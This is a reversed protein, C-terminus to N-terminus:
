WKFCSGFQSIVYILYVILIAFAAVVGALVTHGAVGLRSRPEVVARRRALVVAPVSILFVLLAGTLVSTIGEVKAHCHNKGFGFQLALWALWVVASVLALLVADGLTDFFRRM